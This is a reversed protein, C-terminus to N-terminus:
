QVRAGKKHAAAAMITKLDLSHWQFPVQCAQTITGQEDQAHVYLTIKAKVNRAKAIVKLNCTPCDPAKAEDKTIM